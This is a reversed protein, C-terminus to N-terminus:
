LSRRITSFWDSVIGWSLVGYKVFTNLLLILLIPPTLLILISLIIGWLNDIGIELFPALKSGFNSVLTVWLAIYTGLFLIVFITLIAVLQRRNVSVEGQRKALPKSLGVFMGIRSFPRMRDRLLRAHWVEITWIALATTFTLAEGSGVYYLGRKRAHAAMPPNVPSTTGFPWGDSRRDQALQNITKLIMPDTPSVGIQMLTLAIAPTYGQLTKISGNSPIEGHIIVKDDWMPKGRLNQRLYAVGRKVTSEAGKGLCSHLAWLATSTTTPEISKDNPDSPNYAWYDKGNCRKSLLFSIGEEISKRIERKEATSYNHINQAINLVYIVTSTLFVNSSNRESRAISWGGDIEQQRALWLVSALVSPYYTGRYRTALLAWLANSTSWVNAGETASWACEQWNPTYSGSVIQKSQMLSFIEINTSLLYSQMSKLTDNDIFKMRYLALLCTATTEPLPQDRDITGKPVGGGKLICDLLPELVTFLSVDNYFDKSYLHDRLRCKEQILRLSKDSIGSSISAVSM